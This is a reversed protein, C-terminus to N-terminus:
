LAALPRRVFFIVAAAVCVLVLMAPEPVAGLSPSPAGGAPLDASGNGAARGFNTRWLDYGAQSGDTKRWTIYDRADVTDDHNFDGPIVVPTWIVAHADADWVNYAYGVIIGDDNIGTARSSLFTLGSGSLFSHLDVASAATGNWLLAHVNETATVRGSGAQGAASVAAAESTDFGAPNLDVKSAATGHWMMAHSNGTPGNAYGVQIDNWVAVARSYSANEPHLSVVSEASGSWLLARWASGSVTGFGVQNQGFVGVAETNFFGSSPHLDVVNQANGNWLLAHSKGGPKWGYGVFNAGSIGVAFSAEYGSPNLDVATEASGSWMFAHFNPGTTPGTAFGVQYINSAAQARSTTFGIPNLDVVSAPSGTWMLAHNHIEGPLYGFGVQTSSSAGMGWSKAAGEPHLLTATYSVALAQGAILSTATLFFYVSRNAHHVMRRRDEVHKQLVNLM